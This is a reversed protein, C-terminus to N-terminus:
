VGQKKAGNPSSWSEYNVETEVYCIESSPVGTSSSSKTTQGM